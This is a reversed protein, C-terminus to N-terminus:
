IFDDEAIELELQNINKKSLNNCYVQYTILLKIFDGLLTIFAGIILLKNIDFHYNRNVM